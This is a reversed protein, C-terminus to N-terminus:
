LDGEERYRVGPIRVKECVAEVPYLLGTDVEHCWIIGAVDLLVPSRKRLEAPMLLAFARGQPAKIM